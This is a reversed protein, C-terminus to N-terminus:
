TQPAPTPTVLRPRGPALRKLNQASAEITQTMAAPANETAGIRVATACAATARGAGGARTCSVLPGNGAAGSLEAIFIAFATALCAAMTNAGGNRVSHNPHSTQNATTPKRDRSLRVLSSAGGRHRDGAGARRSGQGPTPALWWLAVVYSFLALYIATFVWIPLPWYILRNVLRAILPPESGGAGTLEDQWLTLFCARGLVAQLAVVAWSAVHLARWWRARVWRWGLRVGLPIAALGVLNFGIVALHVALIAQGLAAVAPPSM